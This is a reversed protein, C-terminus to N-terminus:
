ATAEKPRKLYALLVYVQLGFLITALVLHIPQLLAPVAFYAMGIGSLIELAILAGFWNVLGFGLKRKHNLWILWVNLLLVAISFSRHVYFNVSLESIWNSRAITPVVESIHDIEQRVQTGLVVQVISLVLVAVLGWQFANLRKTAKEKPPSIRSIVWLLVAVILLAMVMHKTIRLPDLEMYVVTAGLWAQFGMMLNFLAILAVNVFPQQKKIWLILALLFLVIGFNGAMFGVLRNIYETWTHVANFTTNAESYGYKESYIAVYDEPLQSADTPPIWQGFCKPWDPCGMGSDTMRVVGGAVIILYVAVLTIKAWIRFFRLM